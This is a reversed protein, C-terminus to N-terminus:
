KVLINLISAHSVTQDRTRLQLSLQPHLAGPKRTWSTEQQVRTTSTFLGFSITSFALSLFFLSRMQRKSNTYCKIDTPSIDCRTNDRSMLQGEPKHHYNDLHYVILNECFTDGAAVTQVRCRVFVPILFEETILSLIM